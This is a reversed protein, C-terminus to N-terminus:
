WDFTTEWEKKANVLWSRSVGYRGDQFESEYTVPGIPSIKILQKFESLKNDPVHINFREFQGTVGAPLTDYGMM